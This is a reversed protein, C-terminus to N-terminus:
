TVKQMCVPNAALCPGRRPAALNNTKEKLEPFFCIKFHKKVTEEIEEAHPWGKTEVTM